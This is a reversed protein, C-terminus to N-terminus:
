RGSRFLPGPRRNDGVRATLGRRDFYELLPVAYKRTLGTLDKFDGMSMLDHTALHGRLRAELADLAQRHYILSEGVRVVAGREELLSVFTPFRPGLGLQSQMESPLPPTSGADRLIAELRDLAARDADGLQRESSGVRLADARVHIPEGALLAPAGGAQTLRALGELLEGFRQKTGRHALREQLEARGIGWALPNARQYDAALRRVESAARALAEAAYFAEGLRQLAGEEALHDLAPEVAEEAVVRAARLESPTAGVLGARRVADHVLDESGGQERLAIAQLVDARFRKHKVPAPDLVVAGGLTRMPSYQRIVLRDGREAALPSELRLQAPGAAGPELAERDLLVVRGLLEAAGHHIRLRTRNALPREWSPLLQLTVDLMFSARLVGPTAVLMGREVDGSKLGHLNLAVREGAVAVARKEAHVQVSRVRATRAEPLVEVTDGERVRGSWATGTVLLGVGALTFVRDVPLRFAADLPRVPLRATVADLAARLDDLGQGTRASVRVRLAAELFTGQVLDDIEADVVALTDADALDCKTVVVIGGRLGLLQLVELHERTQPMVSEDAAVVLMGLDMGAAGAVMAKVFREHGPVDVLGVRDGSPLVLEAFGLEISIGREQEEKLRDTNVGTLAKVLETKGHDVHGATGVIVHRNPRM